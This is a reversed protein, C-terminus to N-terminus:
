GRSLKHIINSVNCLITKDGVPADDHPDNNSAHKLRVFDNMIHLERAVVNTMKAILNSGHDIGM